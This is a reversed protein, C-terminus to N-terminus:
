EEPLDMKQLLINSEIQVQIGKNCLDDVLLQWDKIKLSAAKVGISSKDGRTIKVAADATSRSGADILRVLTIENLAYKFKLFPILYNRTILEDTTIEFYFAESVSLLFAVPIIIISFNNNPEAMFFGVGAAIFIVFVLNNFNLVRNGSYIL